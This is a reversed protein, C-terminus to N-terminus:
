SNQLIELFVKKVCCRQVVAEPYIAEEADKEMCKQSCGKRQIRRLNIAFALITCENAYSIMRGSLFVKKKLNDTASM